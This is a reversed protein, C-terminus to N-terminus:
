QEAGNSGRSENTASLVDGLIMGRIERARPPREDSQGAAIRRALWVALVSPCIQRVPPMRDPAAVIVLVTGHVNRIMAL